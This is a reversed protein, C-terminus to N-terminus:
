TLLRPEWQWGFVEGCLLARHAVSGGRGCDIGAPTRHVVQDARWLAEAGLRPRLVSCRPRHRLVPHLVDDRRQDRGFTITVVKIPPLHALESTVLLLMTTQPGACSRLQEFAGLKGYFLLIPKAIAEYAYAGLLYGAIGGLTSAATAVFAYRYAREPKALAMPVFLVDAPVLFVSSEIFAIIALWMEASQRSALSLTWEYLRRIMLLTGRVLKRPLWSRRSAKAQRLLHWLVLRRKRDGLIPFRTLLALAWRDM